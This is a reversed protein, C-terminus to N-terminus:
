RQDVNALKEEGNLADAIGRVRRTGDEVGILLVGGATNAFAIATKVSADPSSL